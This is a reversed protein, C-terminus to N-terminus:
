MRIIYDEIDLVQKMEDYIYTYIDELLDEPFDGIDLEMSGFMINSGNAKKLLVIDKYIHHIKIMLYYKTWGKKKSYIKKDNYLLTYYDLSNKYLEDIM